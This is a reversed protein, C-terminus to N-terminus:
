ATQTKGPATERAPPALARAFTNLMNRLLAVNEMDFADPKGSVIVLVDKVPTGDQLPLVLVAQGEKTNMLLDRVLRAKPEVALHDGVDNVAMPEASSLAAELDAQSRTHQRRLMGPVVDPLAHRITLQRRQPDYRYLGLWHIDLLDRGEEWIAQMAEPVEQSMRLREQLTMTMRAKASLRNISRGLLGIEDRGRTPMQYGFDGSSVRVCGAIAGTIRRVVAYYFWTLTALSLLGLVALSYFGAQRIRESQRALEAHLLEIVGEISRRLGQERDRIFATGWELRPEELNSGLQERLGDHFDRWDRGISAMQSDLEPNRLALGFLSAYGGTQERLYFEQIAKVLRDMDHLEVLFEPYFVIVDRDYSPYDRPAVQVYHESRRFFGEGRTQLQALQGYVARNAAILDVTWRTYIFLSAAILFVLALASFVKFRLGFM